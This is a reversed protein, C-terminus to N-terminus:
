GWRLIAIGALSRCIGFIILASSLGIVTGIAPGLLSGILIAANLTLNYWGLHAPRDNEPINELIYNYWGGSAMSFAFGCIFNAALYYPLGFTTLIPFLGLFMIGVGTLKKNGFRAVLQGLGLSGFFVTINFLGNALGIWQDSIKLQNVIYLTVCPISMFQALHWSFLLAMIKGYHGRMVDIRLSSLWRQYILKIRAIWRRGTAELHWDNETSLLVPHGRQSALKSLKYLSFCSILAGIFGIAFVIQYGVPFVVRDLIQGSVMTLVTTAVALAANRIGVVHGRWEGPVMDGFLANFGVVVVTGPINMLFTVFIIAWVQAQPLLIVPLPVLGLYFIRALLSAWFVSRGVSHKNFWNAVPLAFLLNVLGPVASLLGIQSAIAGQRTAYVSLFAITSGSLIGMGAMDLYMYQFTERYAAPVPVPPSFIRSLQRIFAAPSLSKM